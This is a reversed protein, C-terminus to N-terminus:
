FNLGIILPEHILKYKLVDGWAFSKQSEIGIVINHM